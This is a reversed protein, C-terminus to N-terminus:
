LVGPKMLPGDNDLLGSLPLTGYGRLLGPCSLSDSAHLFGHGALTGFAQLFGSFPSRATAALYVLCDSRIVTGYFVSPRFHVLVEYVDSELNVLPCYFVLILSHTTPLCYVGSSYRVSTDSFVSAM